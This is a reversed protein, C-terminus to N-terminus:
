GSMESLAAPLRFYRYANQQVRREVQGRQEKVTRLVALRRQTDVTRWEENRRKTEKEVEVYVSRVWAKQQQYRMKLVDNKDDLLHRGTSGVDPNDNFIEEIKSRMRERHKSRKEAETSGHVRKNRYTWNSKVYTWVILQAAAAWTGTDTKM